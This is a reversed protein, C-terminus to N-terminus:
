DIIREIGTFVEFGDQRAVAALTMGAQQATRVALGTPASVAVLIQAGLVAAKQVMEVSVRSTLFVAGPSLVGSRVVCGALKDLANHRGVDEKLCMVGTDPTWWAAAHTARTAAGLTQLAPMSAVVGLLDEASLRLGEGVRPAPRLAESLSEIGCLGCGTPGINHTRRRKLARSADSELWMRAEVGIPTSIVELSTIEEPSSIIGETLSFGVAFDELDQPTAMMVATTSADHVLAVAVEEPISRPAQTVQGGRWVTRPADILPRLVGSPADPSSM